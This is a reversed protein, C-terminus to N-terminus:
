EHKKKNANVGWTDTTRHCSICLTRGNDIAFRLEPFQSFPKIHDANLTVRHGLGKEGRTGCWVCTYNDREFVAIRWLKYETSNRIKLHIPTIGGKWQPNDKGKNRSVGKQFPVVPIHGKKFATPPAKRGKIAYAGFNKTNKARQEPTKKQNLERMKAKTEETHKKGAM